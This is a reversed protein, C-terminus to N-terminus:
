RIEYTISVTANYQNEGIPVSPASVNMAQDKMAGGMGYAIPYPYGGSSESFNVIRGLRVGLEDSLKDAQAKAKEIAEARAADYGATSDDLTFDPGSINQVELTGLTALLPSVDDLNRVTIQISQSVQYGVIKPASAPCIIGAGCRGYDYQPNVSYYLTKIDKEAIGQAKIKEIAANTQKTTEAQADAVKGADNQVTFSVRAIDPAVFAQGMGTVTITDTAPNALRGFNSIGSATQVFLFLALIALVGIVAIRVGGSGFLDNFDNMCDISLSYPLLLL